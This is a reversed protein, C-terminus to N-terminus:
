VAPTSSHNLIAVDKGNARLWHALALESGLGDGDPNIHTTLLFRRHRRLIDAVAAPTAQPDPQRTM